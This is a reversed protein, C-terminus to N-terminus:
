AAYKLIQVEVKKSIAEEAIQLVEETVSESLYYEGCNACIEAPVQKLVVLSSDRELTVTAQGPQTEGHKCIVCQM